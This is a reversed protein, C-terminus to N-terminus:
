GQTDSDSPPLVPLSISPGLGGGWLYRNSATGGVDTHKLLVAPSAFTRLPKVVVTTFCTGPPLWWHKISLRAGWKVSQGLVQGLGAASLPWGAGIPSPHSSIISPQIRRLGTRSVPSHPFCVM